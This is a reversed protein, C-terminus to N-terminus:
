EYFRWPDLHLYLKIPDQGSYPVVFADKYTSHDIDSNSVSSTFAKGGIKGEGDITVVLKGDVLIVFAEGVKTFKDGEYLYLTVGEEAEAKTFQAYAFHGNQGTLFKKPDDGAKVATVSSRSEGLTLNVKNVFKLGPDEEIETKVSIVDSKFILGCPNDTIGFVGNMDDHNAAYFVIDNPGQKLLDKIEASYVNWWHDPNIGNKLNFGDGLSEPVKPTWDPVEAFNGQNDTTVSNTLAVETYAVRTGNVFLVAANDAAFYINVEDNEIEGDIEFGMTYHIIQSGTAGYMWSDSRSWVWKAGDLADKDSLRSTWFDKINPGYWGPGVWTNAPTGDTGSDVIYTGGETWEDSILQISSRKVTTFVGTDDTVNVYKTGSVTEKLTYSGDKSVIFTVTSGDWVPEADVLVGDEDYLEFKFSDRDAEWDGFAMEQDKSDLVVKEFSIEYKDEINPKGYIEDFNDGAAKFEPIFVMNINFTSNGNKKLQQDEILEEGEETWIKVHGSPIWFLYWEEGNATITEQNEKKSIGYDYYMNSVKKTLVFGEYKEFVEPKVLLWCDEAKQKSDWYFYIGPFDASHANSPIKPGKANTRASYYPQIEAAFELQEPALRIEEGKAKRALGDLPNLLETCSSLVLGLALVVTVWVFLVKKM